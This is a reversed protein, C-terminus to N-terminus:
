GEETTDAFLAPAWAGLTMPGTDRLPPETQRDHVDDEDADDAPAFAISFPEPATALPADIAVVRAAGLDRGAEYAEDLLRALVDIARRSAANPAYLSLYNGARAIHLRTIAPVTTTPM